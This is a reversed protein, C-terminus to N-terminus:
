RRMMKGPLSRAQLLDTDGPEQAGVARIFIDQMSPMQESFYVIEGAGSLESLMVSHPVDALKRIVCRTVHGAEESSIVKYHETDQLTARGEYNVAYIGERYQRRVEEVNGSLVVHARDIIVFNDCIEEVSAMNHTSYIITHGEDRMKMMVDKLMEANVPDFGSFPEDLILLDPNNVVTTIFQVKQQMGKSLSELKSKWRDKLGMREFWGRLEREAERRGMGRLMALYVAQEGARMKRYLGREEPLYGIRRLDDDTLPHGGFTITGQDATLIRNIIRITTTKGAGNRGLLGFICGRPVDFSVDELVTHEDFSKCLHQVSLMNEMM